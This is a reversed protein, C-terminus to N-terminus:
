KYKPWKKYHNKLEEVEEDSMEKIEEPAEIQNLEKKPIPKITYYEGMPSDHHSCKILIQNKYEKVRLTCETDPTAKELLTQASEEEMYFYGSRNRWGLKKGEIKFGREKSIKNLTIQLSEQFNEWEDQFLFPDKEVEEMLKEKSKGEHDPDDKLQEAQDEIIDAEDWAFDWNIRSKM